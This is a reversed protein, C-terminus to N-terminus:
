GGSRYISGAAPTEGKLVRLVNEATSFCIVRYTRDTLAAVHPTILARPHSPLPDDPAPPEQALVDAAYGGLQGSELAALVASQDVVGGRATNILLSGPKMRDLQAPGILHRTQPTLALHLSILDAQALLEELSDLAAFRPDRSSRSWTLVEMGFAAGLDAVRRGIEGLGVIGLRKGMLEVGSYGERIAWNGTATANALAPLRRALALMLLLTQEAVAFTTSGPAYVVPIARGKAASIDINDVGVGCRAIVRLRPAAALIEQTVRGRGRTLIAEAEALLEAPPLGDPSPALRVPAYGALLEVADNHLTELLLITM